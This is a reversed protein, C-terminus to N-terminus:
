GSVRTDGLFVQPFAKAAGIERMRVGFIMGRSADRVCLRQVSASKEGREGSEPERLEEAKM